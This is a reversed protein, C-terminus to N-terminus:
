HKNDVICRKVCVQISYDNRLSV